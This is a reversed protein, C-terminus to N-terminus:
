IRSGFVFLCFIANTWMCLRIKFNWSWKHLNYLLEDKSPATRNALTPNRNTFNHQQQNKERTIQVFDKQFFEQFADIV